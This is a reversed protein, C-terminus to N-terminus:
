RCPIYRGSLKGKTQVFADVAGKGKGPLSKTQNIDRVFKKARCDGEGIPPVKVGRKGLDARIKGRPGRRTLNPIKTGEAGTEGRFFPRRKSCM